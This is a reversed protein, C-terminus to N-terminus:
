ESVFLCVCVSERELESFIILYIFFRYLKENLSMKSKAIEGCINELLTLDFVYM